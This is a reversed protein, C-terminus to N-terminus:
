LHPVSKMEIVVDLPGPSPDPVYVYAITCDGPFRVGENNSRSREATTSAEICLPQSWRM